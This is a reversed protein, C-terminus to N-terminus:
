AMAMARIEAEREAISDALRFQNVARFLNDGNQQVKFYSNGRLHDTFFRVGLEFCILLLGDFIYERQEKSLLKDSGFFYGDLLAQCFDLDFRVPLGEGGIEGERNCCSRLCDGLDHHVLGMSVTDLDLLGIVEGQDGFLFNEVKPDGHIPQLNLIGAKKANELNAAKERYHEITTLCSLFEKSVDTTISQIQRDYDQLYGPLNHFGPLPDFLEQADLDSVLRHFSALTKGVWHAQAQNALVRCSTHPLYSQGRWFAGTSERFFLRKDLTLVPVAVQLRRGLENKKHALHNSIKQFNEIVRLPEPFVESNIKQLVFSHSASGVLYTDNINGFGLVTVICTNPTHCFAALVDYPIPENVMLIRSKWSRDPL